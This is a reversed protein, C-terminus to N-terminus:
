DLRAAGQQLDMTARFEGETLKMTCTLCAKVDAHGNGGGHGHQDTKRRCEIQATVKYPELIPDRRRSTSTFWVV